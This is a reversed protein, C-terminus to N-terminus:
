PTKKPANVASALPPTVSPQTPKKSSHYIQERHASTQKYLFGCYELAAVVRDLTELTMHRRLRRFLEQRSTIGLKEVLEQIRAANEVDMSDGVGRFLKVLSNGVRKVESIANLMDIKDIVLANGRSASFIMALKLVHAKIRARFNAIAELDDDASASIRQQKLFDTFILRAETDIKFEGKLQSIEKLDAVLQDYLRKSNPSKKLPTPFPLDKSPKDAYIFLCRSSFGGTIVMHVEKNVNRLFDPVSAALLSACMNEVFVSGKNKTQYNFDKKSWAEELFELMWESAGLLVRLETSFLLCSHDKTGPVIQQQVIQIGTDWGEAIQEIIKEATIRDSLTNVVANPSTEKIIGEVLEMTTGKGIGPPAVLVVFQNPYLTYTGIEFFVKNRLTAGILSLAGWLVFNDPADTHPSVCSLFSEHWPKSLQRSV